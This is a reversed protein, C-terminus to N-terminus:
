LCGALAQALDRATRYRDSPRPETVREIVNRLQTAIAPVNDVIFRFGQDSQKYFRLPNEGTLLFTLSPGIAYLDSQPVARGQNQEPASYGEAGIRTGSPIGLSKVAGFDLVVIRNSVTQVLLNGPKIDRHIIPVNRNHLYELVECTQIMWAIAQRPSVVGHQRVRRELDQGHLLEMVLYKRGTEIFFDYFRPIGRHNLAKLTTAERDFLEQAKPIKEMDANMEKLVRLATSAQGQVVEMPNWVLYTIGMGGRGLIRLVQYQRITKEVRVPQGCHVCFLNGPKNGAHTCAQTSQQGVAPTSAAQRIVPLQLSPKDPQPTSAPFVQIQLIPGGEALQLLAQESIHEQSVLYGNLFTGNSSQNTLQWYNSGNGVEPRPFEVRRLELHRRSVLPHSLVVHSDPSRGVQIFTETEFRWRKVPTHDQPHLLTLIVM